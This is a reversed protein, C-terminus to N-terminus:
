QETKPVLSIFTTECKSCSLASKKNKNRKKNKSSAEHMVLLLQGM